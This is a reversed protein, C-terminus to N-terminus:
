VAGDVFHRTCMCIASFEKLFTNRKFSPYTNLFCPYIGYEPTYLFVRLISKKQFTYKKKTPQSHTLCRFDM